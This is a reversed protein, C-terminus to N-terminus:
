SHIKLSLIETVFKSCCLFRRTDFDFVIRLVIVACKLFPPFIPLLFTYTRVMSHCYSVGSILQQFFIRAQHLFSPLVVNISTYTSLCYAVNFSLM